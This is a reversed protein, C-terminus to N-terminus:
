GVKKRRHAHKSGRWTANKADMQVKWACTYKEDGINVYM